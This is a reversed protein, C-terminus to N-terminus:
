PALVAILASYTWSCLTILRLINRRAAFIGATKEHEGFSIEAMAASIDAHWPSGSRLSSLARINTLRERIKNSSDHRDDIGQFLFQM